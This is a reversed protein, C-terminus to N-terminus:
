ASRKSAGGARLRELIWMRALTTPGVGMERAERRLGEWAESSLRVPVVKDLPRKVDVDVKEDTTEWATGGADIRDVERQVARDKDTM